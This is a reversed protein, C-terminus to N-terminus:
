RQWATPLAPDILYGDDRRVLVERLGARRLRKIVNYVRNAEHEPHAREGPWGAAFLADVALGEGPRALRQEVLLALVRRQAARRSLDIEPGDHLRFGRGEPHVLLGIEPAPSARPLRLLHLAEARLLHAPHAEVWAHLAAFATGARGEALAHTAHVIRQLAEDDAPDVEGLATMAGDRDGLLASLQAIRLPVSPLPAYLSRPLRAAAELCARARHLEGRAAAIAARLTLVRVRMSDSDSFPGRALRETVATADDVRGLAIQADALVIRAMVRGLPHPAGVALARQASDEAEVFRGQLYAVRALQTAAACTALTNGAARAREELGRYVAAPDPSRRARWSALNILPVVEAWADGLSRFTDASQLYLAEARADQGSGQAFDALMVLAYGEDLRAGSSRALLLAREFTAAARETRGTNFCAHGLMRTAFARLGELDLDDARALVQELLALAPAPRDLDLLATARFIAAEAALTPEPDVVADLAREIRALVQGPTGERSAVRVLGNAVRLAAAPDTGLAHHYAALANWREAAVRAMWRGGADTHVGREARALLGVMWAVHRARVGDLDGGQALAFARVSEYLSFRTPDGPHAVLLSREVLDQLVDPLWAPGADVVSEAGDLCFGGDFVTLQVLTARGTDDLLNWSWALASALASHRPDASRARSRLLRFREDLHALIERPSLPGVRQAALELALPLRDLREVLEAIADADSPSFGPDRRRVRAVFLAVADAPALPGVPLLHEDALGVPRQSTALVTLQPADRWLAELRGVGHRDLQELNDLVLLLPGRDAVEAEGGLAVRLAEDVTEAGGAHVLDTWVWPSDVWRDRVARALRTKGAGAPGVLTVWGPRGSRALLWVLEGDRGIPPEEGGAAVVGNQCVGAWGFAAM